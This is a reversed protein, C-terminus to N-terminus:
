NIPEIRWEKQIILALNQYWKVYRIAFLFSCVFPRVYLMKQDIPFVRLVCFKSVIFQSRSEITSAGEKLAVLKINCPKLPWCSILLCNCSFSWYEVLAHMYTVNKTLSYSIKTSLLWLYSFIVKKIPQILATIWALNIAHKYEGEFTPTCGLPETLNGLRIPSWGVLGTLTEHITSLRQFRM